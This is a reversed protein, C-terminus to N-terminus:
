RSYPGEDQHQGKGLKRQIYERQHSLYNHKKHLISKTHKPPKVGKPTKRHLTMAFAADVEGEVPCQQEAAAKEMERRVQDEYSAM